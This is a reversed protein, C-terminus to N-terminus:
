HITRVRELPWMILIAKGVISSRPIPGFMRSDDSQARDDGLVFFKGNPVTQAPVSRRDLLAYPEQVRAGGILVQGNHIAISEGPMGIVRKLVLRRGDGQGQTFAIVDGRAVQLNFDYALTNILVHTGNDISPLMSVGDVQPTRFFLLLVLTLFFLSQCALRLARRIRIQSRVGRRLVDFQADLHLSTRAKLFKNLPQLV